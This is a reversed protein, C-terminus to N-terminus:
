DFRKSPRVLELSPSDVDHQHNGTESRLESVNEDGYTNALEGLLRDRVEAQKRGLAQHGNVPTEDAMDETWGEANLWTTLHPIFAPERHQFALRTQEAIAALMDEVTALKRAREFAPRAKKRTGRRKSHWAFWVRDFDSQSDAISVSRLSTDIDEEKKREKKKHTRLGQRQSHQLSHAQGQYDEYNCVTIRTCVTDYVTRLSHAKKLLELYHRTASTSWGWITALHRLSCALEGREINVERGRIKRTHPQWAANCVLWLWADNRSYPKSLGILSDELVSRPLMVYGEAM